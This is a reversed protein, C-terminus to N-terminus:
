VDSVTDSSVEGTLEEYLADILSCIRDAVYKFAPERRIYEKLKEIRQTRPDDPPQQAVTAASRGNITRRPPKSVSPGSYIFM